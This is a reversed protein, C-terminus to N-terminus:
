RRPKRTAGDGIRTPLRGTTRSLSGDHRPDRHPRSRARGLPDDRHLGDLPRPEPDDHRRRGPRRRPGPRPQRVPHGGAGAHRGQDHAPEQPERRRGLARGCGPGLDHDHPVSRRVVPEHDSRQGHVDRPRLRRAALRRHQLTGPYVVPHLAALHERQTDRPSSGQRRVAARDRPGQGDDSQHQQLGRRRPPALERLHHRAVVATPGRQGAEADAPRAAPTTPSGQGNLRIAYTGAPLTRIIEESGLGPRDSTQLLKTCGQYLSLNAPVSLAGLVLRMRTTSTLKFRYWDVDNATGFKGTQWQGSPTVAAGAGSCTASADTTGTLAYAATLHQAGETVLVTHSRAGGDSWGQFTWTGEGIVQTAPATVTLQTGVIGTVTPAVANVNGLTTAIGAPATDTAITGTKPYLEIQNTATSGNSDTVVVSLLLHSPYDHAPADFTGSSVGTFTQIIHSHCDSPCHRMTLTWQFASPPLTGDEPDTATGSFSIADGVKWTLAPSPTDITVQPPGNDVSVTRTTTDSLGGSDTVKLGVDVNGMTNYTTSATVGTADNYQGDGDLDWAYTLNDNNPDTSAGADFDVQLPASGSSPTATFTAVPPQNAVYYHIRRIEGRDYDAYVLDGDPSMTLFVAGGPLDTARDLDAFLSIASPDPLGDAGAPM